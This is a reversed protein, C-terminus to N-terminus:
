KEQGVLFTVFSLAVRLEDVLLNEVKESFFVPQGAASWYKKVSSLRL